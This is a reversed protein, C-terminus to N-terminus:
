VRAAGKVSRGDTCTVGAPKRVGPLMRRHDDIKRGNTIAVVAWTKPGDVNRMQDVNHRKAVHRCIGAAHPEQVDVVSFSFDETAPPVERWSKPQWGFPPVLLLLVAVQPEAREATRDIASPPPAVPALAVAAAAIFRREM